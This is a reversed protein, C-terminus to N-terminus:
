FVLLVRVSLLVGEKLTDSLMGIQGLYGSEVTSNIFKKVCNIWIGESGEYATEVSINEQHIFRDKGGENWFPLLNMFYSIAKM